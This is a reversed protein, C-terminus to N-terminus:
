PKSTEGGVGPAGRSIMRTTQSVVVPRLVTVKWDASPLSFHLPEFGLALSLPENGGVARDVVREIGLAM